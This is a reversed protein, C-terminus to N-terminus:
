SPLKYAHNEIATRTLEITVKDCEKTRYHHIIVIFKDPGSIKHVSIKFVQKPSVDRIGLVGAPLYFQDGRLISLKSM